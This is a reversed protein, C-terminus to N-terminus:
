GFLCFFLSPFLQTIWTGFAQGCPFGTQDNMFVTLSRKHSQHIRRYQVPKKFTIREHNMQQDKRAPHDQTIQTDFTALARSQLLTETTKLERHYIIKKPM